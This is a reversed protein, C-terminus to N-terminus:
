GRQNPHQRCRGFGRKFTRATKTTGSSARSANWCLKSGMCAASGANAGAAGAGTLWTAARVGLDDYAHLDGGGQDERKTLLMGLGLAVAFILLDWRHEALYGVSHEGMQVGLYAEGGYRLLRAIVM